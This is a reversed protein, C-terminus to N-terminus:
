SRADVDPDGGIQEPSMYAPTGIAMGTQTLKDGGAEAVARSIGFDAVIAHGGSLLVNEPKIDRHVLGVSHAHGLASAVERTIRIAEALSLQKERAVYSARSEGTGCPM